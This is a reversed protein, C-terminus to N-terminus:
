QEYHAKYTNFREKKELNVVDFALCLDLDLMDELSVDFAGEESIMEVKIDYPSIPKGSIASNKIKDRQRTM